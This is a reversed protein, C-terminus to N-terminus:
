DVSFPYYIFSPSLCFSYYFLSLSLQLYFSVIDYSEMWCFQFSLFFFPLCFQPSKKLMMMFREQIRTKLTSNIVIKRFPLYSMSSPLSRCMVDYRRWHVCSILSCPRPTRFHPQVPLVICLQGHLRILQTRNACIHRWCGGQWERYLDIRKPNFVTLM